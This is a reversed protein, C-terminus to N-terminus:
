CAQGFLQKFFCAIGNFFATIPDSGAPAPTPAATPVPTPAITPAPTATTAATPRATPTSTVVYLSPIPAGSLDLNLVCKRQSFGEPSSGSTCASFNVPSNSYNAISFNSGAATANFDCYDIHRYNLYYSEDIQCSNDPNTPCHDSLDFVNTPTYSGPPKTMEPGPRYSYGYCTVTFDVPGTYAAGAMTFSVNTTTPMIVDAATFPALAVFLLFVPALAM